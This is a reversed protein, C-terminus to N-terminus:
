YGGILALVFPQSLTTRKGVTAAREQESARERELVCLNGRVLLVGSLHM